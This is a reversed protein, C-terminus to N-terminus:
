VDSCDSYFRCMCFDPVAMSNWMLVRLIIYNTHTMTSFVSPSWIRELAQMFFCELAHICERNIYRDVKM